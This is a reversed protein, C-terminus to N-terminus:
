TLHCSVFEELDYIKESHCIDLILEASSQTINTEQVFKSFLPLEYISAYHSMTNLENVIDQNSILETIIASSINFTSVHMAYSMIDVDQGLKIIKAHLSKVNYFAKVSTISELYSDLISKSPFADIITDINDLQIKKHANKTFSPTQLLILYKDQTNNQYFNQQYQKRMNRSNSIRAVELMTLQKNRYQKIAKRRAFIKKSLQAAENAIEADSIFVSALDKTIDISPNNRPTLSLPM